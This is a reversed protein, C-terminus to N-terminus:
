WVGHPIGGTHLTKGFVMPSTKGFVMPSVVLLTFVVGFDRLIHPIRPPPEAAESFRYGFSMGDTTHILSFIYEIHTM